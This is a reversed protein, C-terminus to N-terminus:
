HARNGDWLWGRQCRFLPHRCFLLLTQPLPRLPRVQSPPMGRYRLALIAWCPAAPLCHARGWPSSRRAAPAMLAAAQSPFPRRLFCPRFPRCFRHRGPKRRFPPHGAAPAHRVRTLSRDMAQMSRRFYHPPAPCPARRYRYRCRRLSPHRLSPWHQAPVPWLPHPQPSQSRHRLCAFPCSRHLCPPLIPPRSRSHQPSPGPAPPPPSSLLNSSSPCPSRMSTLSLHSPVSILSVFHPWIISLYGLLGHGEEPDATCSWKGRVRVHVGKWFCARRRGQDDCACLPLGAYAELRRRLEGLDSTPVRLGDRPSLSLAPQPAATVSSSIAPYSATSPLSHHSPPVPISYSPLVNTALACAPAPQNLTPPQAIASPGATVPPVTTTTPQSAVHATSHLAVFAASSSHPHPPPSAALAADPLPLPPHSSPTARFSPQPPNAVPALPPLGDVMQSPAISTSSVQHEPSSPLAGALHPAAMPVRSPPAMVRSAPHPLHSTNQAAGRSSHRNRPVVIPTPGRSISGRSSASRQTLSGPPPPEIASM